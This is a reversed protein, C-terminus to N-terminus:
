LVTAVTVDSVTPLYSSATTLAGVLRTLVHEAQCCVAVLLFLKNSSNLCCNVIILYFRIACVQLVIPLDVALIAVVPKHDSDCVDVCAQYSVPRVAVEEAKRTQM